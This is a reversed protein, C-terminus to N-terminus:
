IHLRSGMCLIVGSGKNFLNELFKLFIIVIKKAQGMSLVCFNQFILTENM